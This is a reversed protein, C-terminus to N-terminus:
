TSMRLKEGVGSRRMLDENDEGNAKHMGITCSVHSSLCDFLHIYRLDVVLCPIPLFALGLM